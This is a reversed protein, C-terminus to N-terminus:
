SPELVVSQVKIDDKTEILCVLIKMGATLVRGFLYCYFKDFEVFFGPSQEFITASETAGVSLM